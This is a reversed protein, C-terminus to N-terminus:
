GIDVVKEILADVGTTIGKKILTDALIGFRDTELDSKLQDYYPSTPNNTRPLSKAINAVARELASITPYEKRIWNNLAVAHNRNESQNINWTIGYNNLCSCIARYDDAVKLLDPLDLFDLAMKILDHKYTINLM